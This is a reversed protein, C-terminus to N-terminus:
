FDRNHQHAVGTSTHLIIQRWIFHNSTATKWSGAKKPGYFINPSGENIGGGTTKRHSCHGPKPSNNAGWRIQPQSIPALFGHKDSSHIFAFIKESLDWSTFKPSGVWLPNHTQTHTHIYVDKHVYRSRLEYFNETFLLLKSFFFFGGRVTTIIIQYNLPKSCVCIVLYLPWTKALPFQLQLFSFSLKLFHM